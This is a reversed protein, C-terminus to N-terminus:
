KSCKNLYVNSYGQFTPQNVVANTTLLPTEM